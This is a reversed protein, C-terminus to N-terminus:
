PRVNYQVPIVNYAAPTFEPLKRLWAELSTIQFPSTCAASPPNQGARVAVDRIKPQGGVLSFYDNVGLCNGSSGATNLENVFLHFDGSEPYVIQLRVTLIPDSSLRVTSGPAPQIGILRIEAPASTPLPAPGGGAATAAVVAGAVLASAGGGILLAKSGGRARAPAAATSPEAAAETRAEELLALVKPAYIDPDLKRQPDVRLLRRFAEKAEGREGAGLEALALHLYADSLAQTRGRVERVLELRRVADQLLQIADAFSAREYLVKARELDRAVSALDDGRVMGAAGVLAAMVLLALRKRM